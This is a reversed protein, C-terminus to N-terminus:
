KGYMAWIPKMAIFATYDSNVMGWSHTFLYFGRGNDGDHDPQRGMPEKELWGWAFETAQQFNMEYPFLNVNKKNDVWHLALCKCKKEDEFISWGVIKSHGSCAIQMALGFTNKGELALEIHKNDM